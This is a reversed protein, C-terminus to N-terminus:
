CKFVLHKGDGVNSQGHGPGTSMRIDFVSAHGGNNHGTVLRNLM